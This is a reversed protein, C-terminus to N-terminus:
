EDKPRVALRETLRELEALLESEIRERSALLGGVTADVCARGAHIRLGAGMSPVERYQVQPGSAHRLERDVTRRVDDPVATDIEVTYGQEGRLARTAIACAAACWERRADDRQWSAVLTDPLERWAQDMLERLVAQERQREVTELAARRDALAKDVARREEDVAQRLRTRAEEWARAVISGAQDQAAERARRCRTEQERAVRRLLAETQAQVISEPSSM